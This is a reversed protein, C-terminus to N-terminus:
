SYWLNLLYQFGLLSENFWKMINKVSLGFAKAKSYTKYNNTNESSIQKKKKAKEKRKKEKKKKERHYNTKCTLLLMTVVM